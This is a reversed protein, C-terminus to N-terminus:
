VPRANNSQEGVRERETNAVRTVRCRLVGLEQLFEMESRRGVVRKRLMGELPGPWSTPTVGGEGPREVVREGSTSLVSGRSLGRECSCAARTRKMWSLRSCELEKRWSEPLLTM